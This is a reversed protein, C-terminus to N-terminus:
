VQCPKVFSNWVFSSSDKLVYHVFSKQHPLSLVVTPSLINLKGPDLWLDGNGAEHEWVKGTLTQNERSVSTLSFGATTWLCCLSSKQIIKLTILGTVALFFLANQSNFYEPEWQQKDQFNLWWSKNNKRQTCEQVRSARNWVTSGTAMM